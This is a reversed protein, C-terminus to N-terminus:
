QIFFVAYNFIIKGNLAQLIGIPMNELPLCNGVKIEADPGSMVTDGVKLGNPALIYRKEGDAYNLLAIYATRNPDYEITAVTAPIGDKNRKFDIIRYKVRNGGGRHRVTIRGQNNRGANSKKEVLLSKEPTKKTVEDFSATTYFRRAPSTPKYTKIAM